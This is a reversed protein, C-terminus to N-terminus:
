DNRAEKIKKATFYYDQKVEIANALEPVKKALKKITTIDPKFLEAINLNNQKAVEILEVANITTVNKIHMGIEVDDVVINKGTLEVHQRLAIEYQKILSQLQLYKQAMEEITEPEGKFYECSRIYQCYRCYATNVKGHKIRREALEIQHNIFEELEQISVFQAFALNLPNFQNHLAIIGILAEPKEKMKQLLYLYIYLQVKLDEDIYNDFRSKIDIVIWKNEQEIVIDARGELREDELWKEIEMKGKYSKLLQLGKKLADHMDAIYHENGTILYQEVANHLREGEIFEQIEVEYPADEIWKKQFRRICGKTDLIKTAGWKNSM